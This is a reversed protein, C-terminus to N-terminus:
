YRPGGTTNGLQQKYGSREPNRANPNGHKHTNMRRARRQAKTSHRHGLTSRHHHHYSRSGVTEVTSGAIVGPVPTVPAASAVSFGLSSCLVGAAVIVVLRMM